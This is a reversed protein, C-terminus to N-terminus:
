FFSTADGWADSAWQLATSFDHIDSGSLFGVSSVFLLVNGGCHRAAVGLSEGTFNAVCGTLTALFNVVVTAPLSVVEAPLGVVSGAEALDAADGIDGATGLGLSISQFVQSVSPIPSGTPPSPGSSSPSPAPGPAPPPNSPPSAQYNTPPSGCGCAGNPGPTGYSGIPPTPNSGNEQGDATQPGCTDTNRCDLGTPDTANIPDNGAYAYPQGTLGVLPDVSLFQGTAPDYYRTVSGNSTSTTSRQYSVAMSTRLRRSDSPSATVDSWSQASAHKRCYRSRRMRTGSARV